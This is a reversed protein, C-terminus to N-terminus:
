GDLFAQRRGRAGAADPAAKIQRRVRLPLGQRAHWCRSHRDRMPLLKAYAKEDYASKGVAILNRFVELLIVYEEETTAAAHLSAIEDRFTMWDGGQKMRDHLSAIEPKM